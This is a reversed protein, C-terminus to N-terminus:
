GASSSMPRSTLYTRLVLRDGEHAAQLEDLLRDNASLGQEALMRRIAPMNGLTEDMRDHASMEAAAATSFVRTSMLAVAFTAHSMNLETTGRKVTDEVFPHPSGGPDHVPVSM